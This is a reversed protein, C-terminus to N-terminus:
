NEFGAMRVCRVCVESKPERREEAARNRGCCVCKFAGPPLLLIDPAWVPWRRAERERQFARTIVDAYAVAINQSAKM